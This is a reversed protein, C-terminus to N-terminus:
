FWADSEQILFHALSITPLNENIYITNKRPLQNHGHLRRDWAQEKFEKVKIDIHYFVSKLVENARNLKKDLILKGPQEVSHSFTIEKIQINMTQMKKLYFPVQEGNGKEKGPKESYSLIVYDYDYYHSINLLSSFSYSNDMPLQVRSRGHNEMITVHTNEISFFAYAFPFEVDPIPEASINGMYVFFRSLGKSMRALFPYFSEGAKALFVHYDYCEGFGFM